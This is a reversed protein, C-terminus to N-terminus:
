RSSNGAILFVSIAALALGILKRATVPEHLFLLGLLAGGASFMCYIPVVVSAPGTALGRFLGTVALAMCISAGYAWFAQPSYFDHASMGRTEHRMLVLLVGTTATTTTAIAMVLLGSFRGDRIALKTFLTTLSYAIM